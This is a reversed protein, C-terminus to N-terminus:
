VCVGELAIRLRRSRTNHAHTARYRSTKWFRRVITVFLGFFFFSSSFIHLIKSLLAGDVVRSFARWVTAIPTSGQARTTAFIHQIASSFLLLFGCM